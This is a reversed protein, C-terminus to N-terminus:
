TMLFFFVKVKVFKFRLQVNLYFKSNLNSYDRVVLDRDGHFILRSRSVLRIKNMVSM